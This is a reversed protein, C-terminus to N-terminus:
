QKGGEKNISFKYTISISANDVGYYIEKVTEILKGNKVNYYKDYEVVYGGGGVSFEINWKKDKSIPTRYGVSLGGGLAPKKGKHDQYRTIGDAAVNFHGCGFHAGTFFGDNSNKFWFRFEPQVSATRFKITNKFYDWASYYVPLTFSLHPVIDIEVAANVIGAALGITNTKIHLYGQTYKQLIPLQNSDTSDLSCTPRYDVCIETRQEQAQLCTSVFLVAMMLLSKVLLRFHM